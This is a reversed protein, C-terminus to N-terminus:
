QRRKRSVIVTVRGSRDTASSKYGVGLGEFADTTSYLYVKGSEVTDGSALIVYSSMFPVSEYSPYGLVSATVGSGGTGNNQVFVLTEGYGLVSVKNFVYSNTTAVGSAVIEIKGAGM